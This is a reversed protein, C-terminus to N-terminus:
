KGLKPWVSQRGLMDRCLVPSLCHATRERWSTESLSAGLGLTSRVHLTEHHFVLFKSVSGTYSDVDEEAGTEEARDVGGGM